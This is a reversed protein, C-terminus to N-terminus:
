TQSTLEIVTIEPPSLFRVPLVSMGIGRNIYLQTEGFQFLGASYRRGLPTGTYLAGIFPLRIQGGHTGGSLVLDIDVDMAELVLDSAHILMVSVAGEPLDRATERITEVDNAFDLWYAPNTYKDLTDFNESLYVVEGDFSNLPKVVLDDFYKKGQGISWLGVTGNTIRTASDDYAEAQWTLPENTGESWVKARMVTQEAGTEVRIRFHYWTDPKSVVGTNLQEKQEKQDAPLGQIPTGHPVFQFAPQRGARRLRYFKDLGDSLHSYFTIGIGGDPHDYRMRGTFEYDQWQLGGAGTYHTYANGRSTGASLAVNSEVFRTKFDAWEWPRFAMYDVGLLYLGAREGTLEVMRNTLVQVGEKEALEELLLNSRENASEFDNEGRVVWVGYNAELQSVFEGAQPVTAEYDAASSIFDGTIVVLDPALRNVQQIATEERSGLGAETLELDSLQIIQMGELTPSLNVVPIVVREIQIYNPEIFYAYGILLLGLLLVLGLGRKVIM